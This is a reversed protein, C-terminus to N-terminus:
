NVEGGYRVRLADAALLFLRLTMEALVVRGDPLELRLM